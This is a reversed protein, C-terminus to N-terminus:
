YIGHAKNGFNAEKAEAILPATSIWGRQLPELANEDLGYWAEPDLHKFSGPPQYHSEGLILVRKHRPSDYDRGVHPKLSAFRTLHDPLNMKPLMKNPQNTGMALIFAGEAGWFALEPASPSGSLCKFLFSASLYM